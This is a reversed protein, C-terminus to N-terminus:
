KLKRKYLLLAGIILAFFAIELLLAQYDQM